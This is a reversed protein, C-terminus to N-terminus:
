CSLALQGLPLVGLNGKRWEQDLLKTWEKEREINEPTRITQQLKANLSKAVSGYERISNFWSLISNRGPVLRHPPIEFRARFARQTTVLSRGNSFFSEVAFARQERSWLM